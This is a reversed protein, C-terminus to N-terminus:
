CSIPPPVERAETVYIGVSDQGIYGEAISELPGRADLDELLEQSCIAWKAAPVAGPAQSIM